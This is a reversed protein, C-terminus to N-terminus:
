KNQRVYMYVVLGTLGLATLINYAYLTRRQHNNIEELQQTVALMNQANRQNVIVSLRLHENAMVRNHKEQDKRAIIAECGMNRFECQVEELSCRDIHKQLEDRPINENRCRYPCPVPLKPCEEKHQGEIFQLGGTDDCYQCNVKHNKCLMEAHNPLYQRKMMISCDFCKVEEFQCGDSNGLHNNIDNMEGQWECGKEKNTCYIHLSKIERELAKYPVTKFELEEKRCMPCALSVSLKAQKHGNLCSECFPHGCCLTMYPDRSPSKCIQCLLRDPPPQVFDYEDYGGYGQTPTAGTAM